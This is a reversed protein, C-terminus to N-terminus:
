AAALGNFAVLVTVDAALAAKICRGCLTNSGAVGTLKGSAAEYYVKAGQAIAEGSGAKKALEVMDCQSVVTVIEAADKTEYFFGVTDGIKTLGMKTCGGSPVTYNDLAQYHQSRMGVSM